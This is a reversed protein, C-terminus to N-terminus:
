RKTENPSLQPAEPRAQLQSAAVTIRRGDEGKRAYTRVVYAGSDNVKSM